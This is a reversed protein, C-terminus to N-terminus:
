AQNNQTIASLMMNAMKPPTDFGNMRWIEKGGMILVFTPVSMINFDKASGPEEDIDIKKITIPYDVLTLAQKIVPDAWKCPECWSAHFDMLVIRKSPDEMTDQLITLRSILFM